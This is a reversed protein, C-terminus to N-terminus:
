QGDGERAGGVPAYSGRNLGSQRSERWRLVWPKVAAWALLGVTAIIFIFIM